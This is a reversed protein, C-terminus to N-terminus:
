PLGNERKRVLETMRDSPATSPLTMEQEIAAYAKARSFKRKLAMQKPRISMVIM